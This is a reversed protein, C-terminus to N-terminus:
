YKVEIWERSLVSAVHPRKVDAKHRKGRSFSCTVKASTTRCQPKIIKLLIYKCNIICALEQNASSFIFNFWFIDMVIKSADSTGFHSVVGYARDTAVYARKKSHPPSDTPSFNITDRLRQFEGNWSPTWQLPDHEESRPEARHTGRFRGVTMERHVM